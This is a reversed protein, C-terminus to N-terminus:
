WTLPDQRVLQSNEHRTRRQCLPEIGDRRAVPDAPLTPEYDTGTM